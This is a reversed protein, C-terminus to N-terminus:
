VKKGGRRACRIRADATRGHDHQRLVCPSRCVGGHHPAGAPDGRQRLDDYEATRYERTRGVRATQDGGKGGRGSLPSHARSSIGTPSSAITFGAEAIWRYQEEFAEQTWAETGTVRDYEDLISRQEPIGVWMGINFEKEDQELYDPLTEKPASPDVVGEVGGEPPNPACGDCASFCSVSLLLACLLAVIKKM